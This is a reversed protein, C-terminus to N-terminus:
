PIVLTKFVNSVADIQHCPTVVQLHVFTGLAAVPLSATLSGLGARDLQGASVIVSNLLVPWGGVMTLAGDFAVLVLACESAEAGFNWTEPASLKATAPGTIQPPQTEVYSFTVAQGPGSFNAAILQAAGLAPATPSVVSLETNDIVTFAAPVGAMTVSQTAALGTGSVEITEGGLAQVSQPSPQHLVPPPLSLVWAQGELAAVNAYPAGVLLDLSGDGDLDGGRAVASGFRDMALSGFSHLLQGDAGSYLHAQGTNSGFQFSAPAGVLLEPRGDNNMDGVAAISVGYGTTNDPVNDHLALLESGDLGSLVRVAGQGALTTEQLASVLVDSLGDGDIDGATAVVAGFQDGINKGVARWILQGTAGSLVDVYGPATAPNAFQPAGVAVDSFGDGNVDGLGAVTSGFLDFSTQGMVELLREGSLGSFIWIAGSRLLGPADHRHAGVILDDHGDGNVDGAGDVAGGFEAYAQRGHFRHLLHGNTASYVWAAGSRDGNDDAVPSGVIVDPQGDGNVDGAHAVDHGFDDGDFFLTDEGKLSLVLSGDVGSRIFARGSWSDDDDAGPAGVVFDPLGDATVDPLGAVSHGFYDWTDAGSVIYHVVQAVSTQTACSLLITALL